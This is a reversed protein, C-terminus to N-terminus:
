PTGDPRDARAALQMVAFLAAGEAESFRASRVYLTYNAGSANRSLGVALDAQGDHVIRITKLTGTAQCPNGFKESSDDALVFDAIEPRNVLRMRVAPGNASADIRVRYDPVRVNSILYTVTGSTLCAPNPEAFYYPAGAPIAAVLVLVVTKQFRNM